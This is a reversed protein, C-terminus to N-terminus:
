KKYSINIMYLLHFYIKRSDVVSFYADVINADIDTIDDVSNPIDIFSNFPIKYNINVPKDYNSKHTYMINIKKMGDLMILKGTPANIKRGAEVNMKLSVEKLKLIKPKSKPIYIYDAESYEIMQDNVKEPLDSEDIVGNVYVSNRLIRM